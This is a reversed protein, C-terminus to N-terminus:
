DNNILEFNQIKSYIPGEPTLESKYICFENVCFTGFELNRSNKLFDSLEKRCSEKVRALTLHPHFNRDEANFGCKLAASEVLQFLDTLNKEIQIGAWIVKPFFVNPFGGSGSIKLSFAKTRISNLLPILEEITTLETDGLFKLTIHHNEAEVYKIGQRQIEKCKNIFSLLADKIEDPVNIAIFARM